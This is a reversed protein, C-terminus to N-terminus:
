EGIILNVVDAVDVKGDKNVDAAEASIGATKGAIYNVLAVVDNADTKGNGDVDVKVGISSVCLGLTDYKGYDDKNLEIYAQLGVLTDLDKQVFGDDDFLFQVISNDWNNASTEFVTVRLINESSYDTVQSDDLTEVEFRLLDGGTTMKLTGSAKSPDVLHLLVGQDRNISNVKQLMVVGGDVGTVIYAELGEPVAFNDHSGRYPMWESRIGIFPDYTKSRIVSSGYEITHKMYAQYTIKDAYFSSSICGNINRYCTLFSLHKIGADFAYTLVSLGANGEVVMENIRCNQFAYEGILTVSEPIRINQLGSNLFAGNSIYTVSAPLEVEKLASCASFCSPPIGNVKKGLTVRELKKCASLLGTPLYVLNDPIVIETLQTEKFAYYDIRELKDHLTIASLDSAEFASRGIITVNQPLVFDGVGTLGNYAYDGIATVTAPIKTNKSARILTNTATEIIANCNDRSDYKTNGAAVVITELASCGSFTNTMATVSAPISISKLCACDQFWYSIDTVGETIVAEELASNKFVNMMEKLTSPLTIKKLGSFSFAYEGITTVGEPVTLETLAKTDYFADREIATLTSPLSVTALSGCSSFMGEPVVTLGEALTAKVLDDCHFFVDSWYTTNVNGPITVETLSSSAFACRGVSTLGSPLTISKLGADRFAETDIEKLGTPLTISELAMCNCFAYEGITELSTPLSVTALSMCDSFMGSPLKTLGAGVTAKKLNVCSMFVREGYKEISAPLEVQTLGSCGYFADYELTKLTEPLSFSTLGNCYKFASNAITIVQYGNVSAPITLMGEVDSNTLSCGLGDGVQCTKDAESIVMFTMEIGETSKATFTDGDAAKMVGTGGLLLAVAMMWQRGLQKMYM